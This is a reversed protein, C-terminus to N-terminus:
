APPHKGIQPEVEYRVLPRSFPDIGPYFKEFIGQDSLSYNWRWSLKWCKHRGDVKWIHVYGDGDNCLVAAVVPHRDGSSQMPTLLTRGEGPALTTNPPLHGVAAAEPEVVIFRVNRASGRGHNQIHIKLAGTDMNEILTIELDPKRSAVFDRRTQRVAIWSAIAAIAAFGASAVPAWDSISALVNM